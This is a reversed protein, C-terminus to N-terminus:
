YVIHTVSVFEADILHHYAFLYIHKFDDEKIPKLRELISEMGLIDLVKNRISHKESLDHLIISYIDRHHFWTCSGCLKFTQCKNFHSYSIVERFIRFLM